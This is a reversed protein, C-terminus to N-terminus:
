FLRLYRGNYIRDNSIHVRPDTIVSGISDDVILKQVLSYHCNRPLSKALVRLDATNEKTFVTEVIIKGTAIADRNSSTTKSPYTGTSRVATLYFILNLLHRLNFLHM